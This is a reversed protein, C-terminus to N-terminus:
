KAQSKAGKFAKVFNHVLFRGREVYSGAAEVKEVHLEDYAKEIEAVLFTKDYFDEEGHAEVLIEHPKLRDDSQLETKKKCM